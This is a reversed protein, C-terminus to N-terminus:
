SAGWAPFIASADNLMDVLMGLSACCMSFLENSAKVEPTHLYWALIRAANVTHLQTSLSMLSMDKVIVSMPSCSPNVMLLLSAHIPKLGRKGRISTGLEALAKAAGVAKKRANLDTKATLSYLLMACGHHSVHRYIMIPSLAGLTGAQEVGWPDLPVPLSGSMTDLARAYISVLAALEPPSLGSTLGM